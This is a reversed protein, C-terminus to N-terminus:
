DLQSPNASTATKRKWCGSNKRQMPHSYVSKKQLDLDLIKLISEFLGPKGVTPVRWQWWGDIVFVIFVSVQVPTLLKRFVSTSCQRAIIWCRALSNGTPVLVLYVIVQDHTEKFRYCALRLKKAETFRDQNEQWSDRLDPPQVVHHGAM